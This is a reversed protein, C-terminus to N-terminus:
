AVQTLLQYKLGYNPGINNYWKDVENSIDFIIYATQKHAYKNFDLVYFTSTPRNNWTVSNETWPTTVQQIHLVSFDCDVSYGVIYLKTSHIGLSYDPILDLNFKFYAKYFGTSLYNGRVLLDYTSGYNENPHTESVYSDASIDIYVSGVQEPATKAFNEGWESSGHENFSQIRYDYRTNIKLPEWDIYEETNKPLNVLFGYTGNEDKREIKFGDENDSTSYINLLVRMPEEALPVVQYFEPTTHINTDENNPLNTETIKKEKCSFFSLLFLTILIKKM